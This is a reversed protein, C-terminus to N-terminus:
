IIFKRIQNQIFNQLKQTFIREIGPEILTANDLPEAFSNSLNFRAGGTVAKHKKSWPEDYAM